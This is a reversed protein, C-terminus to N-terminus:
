ETELENLQDTLVRLDERITNRIGELSSIAADILEKTLELHVTRSAYIATSDLRLDIAYPIGLNKRAELCKIDVGILYLRDQKNIIDRELQERTM